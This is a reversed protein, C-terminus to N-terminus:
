RASPLSTRRPHALGYLRASVALLIMGFGAAYIGILWSLAIMAGRPWVVMVFGFVISAVGAGALLSEGESVRALKAAAFIEFIGTALAWGAICYWLTFAIADPFAVIAGGFALGLAGEVIFPWFDYRNEHRLLGAYIAFAGDVTVYIGFALLLAELTLFPWVVALVALGLGAVGRLTLLWWLRAFPDSM